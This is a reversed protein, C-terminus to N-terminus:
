QFLDNEFETREDHHIRSPFVFRLIFDNYIKNAATHASKNKCAYAQAFRIFSDVFLLIYEYGGSSKELHMFDISILEFPSPAVFSHLPARIPVNPKRQKLCNCVNNVFHTINEQM